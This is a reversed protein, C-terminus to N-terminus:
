FRLSPIFTGNGTLLALSLQPSNLTVVFDLKGDSNFDGAAVAQAQAGVNFDTKPRFTGDGNGLMVSVANLDAGALDVKGDGNLDAAIHTNGLLPYQQTTLMAVQAWVEGFTMACAVAFVFLAIAPHTGKWRTGTNSMRSSSSLPALTPLGLFTITGNSKRAHLVRKGGYM